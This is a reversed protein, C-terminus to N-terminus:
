SPRCEKRREETPGATQEKSSMSSM